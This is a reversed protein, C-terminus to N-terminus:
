VSPDESEDSSAMGLEQILIKVEDETAQLQKQCHKLLISARRISQTLTDISIDDGELLQMLQRLEALADDFKAPIENSDLNSAKM